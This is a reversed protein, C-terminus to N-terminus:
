KAVEKLRHSMEKVRCEKCIHLQMQLSELEMSTIYEGIAASRENASAYTNTGIDMLEYQHQQMRSAENCMEFEDKLSGCMICLKQLGRYRFDLEITPKDKMIEVSRTLTIVKDLDFLIKVWVKAEKNNPPEVIFVEDVHVLNSGISRFMGQRRYINPLKFIRVRFPVQKLFMPYDKNSWWDLVIIWGRYTYTQNELVM